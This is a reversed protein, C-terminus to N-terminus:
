PERRANDRRRTVVLTLGSVALLCGVIAAPWIYADRGSDDAPVITLAVPWRVVEGDRYRQEVELTAPGPEATAEIHLSFTAPTDPALEGGTWEAAKSQASGEWGDLEDIGHFRLGAPASVALETMAVARDNHVALSVVEIGGSPVFTPTAGVHAAAGPAFALALASCVSCALSSWASFRM